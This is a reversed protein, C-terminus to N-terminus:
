KSIPGPQALLTGFQNVFTRKISNYCASNQVLQAVQRAMAVDGAQMAVRIRWEAASVLIGDYSPNNKFGFALLEDLESAAETLRMQCSLGAADYLKTVLWDKKGGPTLNTVMQSSLTSLSAWDKQAYYIRLLGVRSEQVDLESIGSTKDEAVGSFLGQAKILYPAAESRKGEKM